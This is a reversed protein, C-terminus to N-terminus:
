KVTKKCFWLNMLLKITASLVDLGLYVFSKCPKYPYQCTKKITKETKSEPDLLMYRDM